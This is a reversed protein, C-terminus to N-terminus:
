EALQRLETAAKLIMVEEATGAYTICQVSQIIAPNNAAAFASDM